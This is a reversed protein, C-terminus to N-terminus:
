LWVPLILDCSCSWTRVSFPLVAPAPAPPSPPLLTQQGARWGSLLCSPTPTPSFACGLSSRGTVPPWRAAAWPMPPDLTGHADPEAKAQSGETTVKGWCLQLAGSWQAVACGQLTTEASHRDRSAAAVAAGRAASPRGVAARRGAAMIWSGGGGRVGEGHACTWGWALEGAGEGANQNKVLSHSRPCIGAGRQAKTDRQPGTSGAQVTQEQIRSSPPAAGMLLAGERLTQVPGVGVRAVCGRGSDTDAM